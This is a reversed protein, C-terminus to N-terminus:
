TSAHIRRQLRRSESRLSKITSKIQKRKARDVTVNRQEILQELRETIRRLDKRLAIVADSRHSMVEDAWAADAWQIRIPYGLNMATHRCEARIADPPMDPYIGVCLKRQYADILFAKTVSMPETGTREASVSLSNLRIGRASLRGQRSTVHSFM